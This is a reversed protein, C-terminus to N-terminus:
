HCAARDRIHCNTATQLIKNHNQKFGKGPIHNPWWQEILGFHSILALSKQCLQLITKRLGVDAAIILIIM